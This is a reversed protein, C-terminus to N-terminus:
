VVDDGATETSLKVAAAPLTRLASQKEIGDLLTQAGEHGEHARNQIAEKVLGFSWASAEVAADEQASRVPSRQATMKEVREYLQVALDIDQSAYILALENMAKLDRNALIASEYLVIAVEREAESKGWTSLRNALYRMLEGTRRVKILKLHLKTLRKMRLTEERKDESKWIRKAKNNEFATFHRTEIDRWMLEVARLARDVDVETKQMDTEVVNREYEMICNVFMEVTEIRRGLVIAREMLLLAKPRNKRYIGAGTLVGKALDHMALPDQEQVKELLVAPTIPKQNFNTFGVSGGPKSSTNLIGTSAFSKFVNDHSSDPSSSPTSMPSLDVDNTMIDEEDSTDGVSIQTPSTRGSKSSRASSGPISLKPRRKRPSMMTWLPPPSPSKSHSRTPVLSSSLKLIADLHLSADSLESISAEEYAVAPGYKTSRIRTMTGSMQDWSHTELPMKDGVIILSSHKLEFFAMGARFPWWGEWVVATREADASSIKKSVVGRSIKKDGIHVRVHKMYHNRQWERRGQLRGEFADRWDQWSFLAESAKNSVPEEGEVIIELYILPSTRCVTALVKFPQPGAVPWIRFFVRAISNDKLVVGEKSHEVQLSPFGLLLLLMAEIRYQVGKHSEEEFQQLTAHVGNQCEWLLREQVTSDFTQSGEMSEDDILHVLCDWLQRSIPLPVSKKPVVPLWWEDKGDGELYCFDAIESRVSETVCGMFSLSQELHSHQTDYNALQYRLQNQELDRHFEFLRQSREMSMKDKDVVSGNNSETTNGEEGTDEKSVTEIDSSHETNSKQTAHMLEYHASGLGLRQKSKLLFEVQHGASLALWNDIRASVQLIGRNDWLYKGYGGKMFPFGCRSLTPPDIFGLQDQLIRVPADSPQLTKRPRTIDFDKSSSRPQSHAQPFCGCWESVGIFIAFWEIQSPSLKEVYDYLYSPVQAIAEKILPRYLGHSPLPDEIQNLIPSSYPLGAGNLFCKKLVDHKDFVQDRSSPLFRHWKEPSLFSSQGRNTKSRFDQPENVCGLEMRLVATGWVKAAFDQRRAEWSAQGSSFSESDQLWKKGFQALYAVSWRVFTTEPKRPQLKGRRSFSIHPASSGIIENDVISSNVKMRDIIRAINRYSVTTKNPQYHIECRAPRQERQHRHSDGGQVLTDSISGSLRGQEWSRMSSSTSRKLRNLTSRAGFKEFFAASSPRADDLEETLDAHRTDQNYINLQCKYSASELSVATRIAWQRFQYLQVLGWVTRVLHYISLVLAAIGAFMEKYDPEELRQQLIIYYIILPMPVTVVVIHIVGNRFTKRISTWRESIFDHYYLFAWPILIALYVGSVIGLTDGLETTM